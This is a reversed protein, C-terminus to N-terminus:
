KGVGTLAFLKSTTSAPTAAPEISVIFGAMPGSETLNWAMSQSGTGVTGNSDGVINAVNFADRMTSGTGASITGNNFRRAASALWCGSAVVTTSLTLTTDSAIEGGASSDTPDTATGSYLCVYIRTGADGLDNVTFTYNVASTSPNYKYYARWSGVFGGGVTEVFESGIQTAASGDVTVSNFSAGVHGYFVFIIATENAAAAALSVTASTTGSTSDSKDFAIAM